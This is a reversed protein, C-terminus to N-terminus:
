RRHNRLREVPENNHFRNDQSKLASSLCFLLIEMHWQKKVINDPM